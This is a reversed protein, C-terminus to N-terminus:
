NIWKYLKRKLKILPQLYIHAQSPKPERNLRRIFEVRLEPIDWIELPEFFEPGYKHFWDLIVKLRWVNKKPGPSQPLVLGELWAKPVPEVKFDAGSNPLYYRNNIRVYNKPNKLLEMCRYWTQRLLASQFDAYAFHLVVGEQDTIKTSNEPTNPGPTKGFHLFSDRFNYDKKDCFIFDKFLNTFDCRADSVFFSSSKWLFPWRMVLKQGPKLRAIKEKGVKLFNASLAEDADLCIFHTGGNQRGLDLLRQRALAESWGDLSSEASQFVKVGAKELLEKTNDTSRDNIAIIEDAVPKLSSLYTPLVSSENRALLLAIIKM